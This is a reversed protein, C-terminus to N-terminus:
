LITNIMNINLFNGLGTKCCDVILKNCTYNKTVAVGNHGERVWGLDCSGLDGLM